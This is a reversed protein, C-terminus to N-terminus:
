IRKGKVKRILESLVSSQDVDEGDLIAALVKQKESIIEAIDEEITNNAVLYYINVSNDQGIRHTRDEAQLIEGPAWPFELFCVNSATTLTIGVGAAKVNGIFLKINSDNQFIDVVEQRVASPTSGDLKVAIKRFHNMLLDITKRHTAFIVLKQDSELFNEIWDVCQNIKGDLALQKLKEFAVLTEAQKAKEAKEKGENQRIWTIIDGEAQKYEMINDIEIPIITRIKAPLDKLVDEKKHRIMLTQTLLKHLEKTHTAGSFDWGFGNHTAGCYKQAFEWYGSFLTPEIINITNYFEIPRNIIPTGSLAIVHKTTKSLTITAKTRLAQKNKIVHSEDLIIVNPEIKILHDVWGTGHHETTIEKGTQQNIENTFKNSLIDYNIITINRADHKSSQITQHLKYQNNDLNTSKPKGNIIFLNYTEKEIWMKVEKAWNLKLSAPVVVIISKLEPHLQLWALAMATKGLGMESGILARGNRSEVFAVGEKQFPYLEQQLRPIELKYNLNPKTTMKSHWETLVPDFDFEFDILKQVADLSLPCKWCYETKVFRRGPLTKIKKVMGFFQKDGKPYQFKITISNKILEATKIIEQPSKPLVTSTTKNIAVPEFGSEILQGIYKLIIRKVYGIQKDSLSGKKLFQESLSSMFGADTANFGKANDHHTGGTYQEDATQFSYIKLLAGIAYEDTTKILTQLRNREEEQSNNDAM